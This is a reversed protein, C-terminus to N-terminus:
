RVRETSVEVGRVHQGGREEGCRRWWEWSYKREGRREAWADREDGVGCVRSEIRRESRREWADALEGTGGRSETSEAAWVVGPFRAPALVRRAAAAGRGDSLGHRHGPHRDHVHVDHAPHHAPPLHRHQVNRAAPPFPLNTPLLNPLPPHEPRLSRPRNYTRAQIVKSFPPSVKVCSSLARGSRQTAPRSLCTSAMLVPM